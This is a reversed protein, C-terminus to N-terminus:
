VARRRQISEIQIGIEIEVGIGSLGVKTKVQAKYIVANVLEYFWLQELFVASVGVGKM